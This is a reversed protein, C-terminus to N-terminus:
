SQVPSRPSTDATLKGAALQQLSLPANVIIDPFMQFFRVVDQHKQEKLRLCSQLLKLSLENVQTHLTILHQEAWKLDILIDKTTTKGRCLCNGGQKVSYHINHFSVISGQQQQQSSGSPQFLLETVVLVCECLRKELIHLPPFTGTEKLGWEAGDDCLQLFM